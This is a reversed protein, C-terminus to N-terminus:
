SVYNKNLLRYELDFYKDSCLFRIYTGEVQWVWEWLDLGHQEDLLNGDDDYRNDRSYTGYLENLGNIVRDRIQLNFGKYPQSLLGISINVLHGYEDFTFIRTFNNFNLISVPGYLCEFEGRDNYWVSHPEGYIKQVDSYSSKWTIKGDYCFSDWSILPTPM